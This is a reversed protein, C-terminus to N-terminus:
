AGWFPSKRRMIDVFENITEIEEASLRDQFRKSLAKADAEPLRVYLVEKEHINRGVVPKDLSIAVQMGTEAESISEGRDQIQSIEGVDEGDEKVLSYKSKIRGALVEIGVIAPKARRFVYGPLLKIKGPKVLRDFEERLLGEKESKM